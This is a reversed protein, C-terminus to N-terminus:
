KISDNDGTPSGEPVNVNFEKTFEDTLTKGKEFDGLMASNQGTLSCFYSYANFGGVFCELEKKNTRNMGNRKFIGKAKQLGLILARYEAQNNTTEGFYESCNLITEGSESNKIVAGGAAPGPNGRAGGDSYIQLKM